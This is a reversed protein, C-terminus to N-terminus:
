DLLHDEPTWTPTNTTAIHEALLELTIALLLTTTAGLLFSTTTTLINKM